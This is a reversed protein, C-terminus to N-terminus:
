EGEEESECASKLAAFEVSNLAPRYSAQNNHAREFRQARGSSLPHSYLFESSLAGTDAQEESLEYFLKATPLPSIGARRLMAIADSDAEAEAVRSYRMRVLNNATSAITGGGLTTVVLDLGLARVMGAAVHRRRVHALEHALVGALADVDASSDVLGRFIFIHNGPIAVANMQDIDVLRVDIGDNRAMPDLRDVLRDMMAQSGACSRQDLALAIPNGVSKELSMPVHRAFREPFAVVLLVSLCLLFFVGALGISARTAGNFSPKALHAVLQRDLPPLFELRWGERSRHALRIQDGGSDVRRLDALDVRDIVRDGEVLEWGAENARIRIEHHLAVKGDYWLGRQM